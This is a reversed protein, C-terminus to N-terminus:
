YKCGRTGEQMRSECARINAAVHARSRVHIHIHAHRHSYYCVSTRACVYALCVRELSGIYIIVPARFDSSSEDALGISGAYRTRQTRENAFINGCSSLAFFIDIVGGHRTGINWRFWCVSLIIIVKAVRNLWCVPHWVTGTRGIAHLYSEDFQVFFIKVMKCVAM